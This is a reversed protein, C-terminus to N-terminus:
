VSLNTPLTRHTYSGPGANSEDGVGEEAGPGRPDEGRRKAARRPGRGEDSPSSKDSTTPATETDVNFGDAGSSVRGSMPKHVQAAHSLSPPPLAGAARGAM